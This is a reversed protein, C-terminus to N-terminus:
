PQSSFQALCAEALEESSFPHQVIKVLFFIAISLLAINWVLLMSMWLSLKSPQVTQPSNKPM